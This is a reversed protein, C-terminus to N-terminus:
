FSYRPFGACGRVMIVIEYLLALAASLSPAQQAAFKRASVKCKAAGRHPALYPLDLELRCGVDPARADVLKWAYHVPEVRSNARAANGTRHRGRARVLM